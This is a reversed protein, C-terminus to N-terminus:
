SGCVGALEWSKKQFVCFRKKFVYLEFRARWTPILFPSFKCIFLSRTYGTRAFLHLKVASHNKHWYSVLIILQAQLFEGIYGELWSHM